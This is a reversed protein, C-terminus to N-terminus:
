RVPAGLARRTWAAVGLALLIDGISIVNPRPLWSPQAIVDGLWALRTYQDIPAVNHLRPEARQAAVREAGWVQIAAETSQPMHGNNAAIVLTNLGLGATAVLWAPVLLGSVRTNHVAVGIIVCRAAVWIWPGIQVAWPQQDVPPNYLALEVCFAGLAAPWWRVYLPPRRDAPIPWVLALMAAIAAPALLGIM